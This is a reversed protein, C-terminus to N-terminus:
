ISPNYRDGRSPLGLRQEVETTFDITDKHLPALVKENVQQERAMIGMLERVEKDTMQM